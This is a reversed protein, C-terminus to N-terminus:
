SGFTSPIGRLKQLMMQLRRSCFKIQVDYCLGYIRVKKIIDEIRGLQHNASDVEPESSM